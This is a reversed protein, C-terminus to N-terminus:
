KGVDSFIKKITILAMDANPKSLDASNWITNKPLNYFHKVVFEEYWPCGLSLPRTMIQRHPLLNSYAWTVVNSGLKANFNTWDTEIENAYKAPILKKNEETATEFHDIIARVNTLKLENNVYLPFTDSGNLKLPILVFPMTHKDEIYNEGYYQLIWRALECDASPSFTILKGM